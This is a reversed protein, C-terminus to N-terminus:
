YIGMELGAVMAAALECASNVAQEDPAGRCFMPESVPKLVLGKAIRQLERVAGSGDNGTCLFVAYPRVTDRTNAPYFCRDLFDKMGGPLAGCNEPTFLLLGDCALLERVGAEAARRLVVNGGERSAAQAAAYALQENRGSQSHYVVLLQKASM